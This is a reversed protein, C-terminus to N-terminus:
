IRSTIRAMHSDRIQSIEKLVENLYARMDAENDLAHPELKNPDIGKEINRIAESADVANEWMEEFISTFRKVYLPENSVLLNSMMGGKERDEISAGFYRDDLAFKMPPLNRIHRIQVGANLFIRVLEINSEDHISTIWRIGEGEGRKQKDIIKKYLDFFNNYVMQMGGSTDCVLRKTANEIVYKIHNFIEDPNELVKTEYKVTAHGEIEEIAHEAPLAKNWLTDFISQQGEIFAKVNSVIAQWLPKKEQMVLIALYETRDNIAFNSKIGPLHRIQIGIEAMMKCYSINYDTIDTIYRQRVGIKALENVAKWMPETTVLMSPGTTDWCYDICDKVELLAKVSKLIISEVGYIMETTEQTTM